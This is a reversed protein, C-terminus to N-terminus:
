ASYLLAAGIAVSTWALCAVPVWWRRNATSKEGSWAQFVGSDDVHFFQPLPREDHLEYMNNLDLM